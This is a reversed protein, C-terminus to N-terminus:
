EGQEDDVCKDGCVDEQVGGYIEFGCEWSKKSFKIFNYFFYIECMM